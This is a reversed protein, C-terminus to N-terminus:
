TRFKGENIYSLFPVFNLLKVYPFVDSNILKELCKVKKIYMPGHM